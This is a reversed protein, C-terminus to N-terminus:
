DRLVYSNETIQDSTEHRVYMTINNKKGPLYESPSDLYLKDLLIMFAAVKTRLNKQTQGYTMM